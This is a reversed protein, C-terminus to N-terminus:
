QDKAVRVTLPGDVSRRSKNRKATRGMGDLARKSITVYYTFRQGDVTTATRELEITTDLERYDM